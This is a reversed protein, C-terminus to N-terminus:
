NVSSGWIWILINFSIFKLMISKALKPITGHNIKCNNWLITVKMVTIVEVFYSGSGNLFRIFIQIWKALIRGFRGIGYPVYIDSFSKYWTRIRYRAIINVIHFYEDTPCVTCCMWYVCLYILVSFSIESFFNHARKNTDSYQRGEGGGGEGTLCESNHITDIFYAYFLLAASHIEKM